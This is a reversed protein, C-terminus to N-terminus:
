DPLYGALEKEVAKADRALGESVGQAMADPYLDEVDAKIAEIVAAAVDEPKAPGGPTMDTDVPGPMVSMVHTGQAALEARVGQALSLGAAKSASYTGMAPVCVRGLLSLMAVIMGGGNAALVPAFARCMSLTGFYNVEMEARANAIADPEGILPRNRNVGANSILLGIDGCREAAAAVQDPDTVDLAFSEVRTGDVLDAVKAPDRATAYIKPAGAAILCKVIQRGMGRNSGTVLVTTKTIDM